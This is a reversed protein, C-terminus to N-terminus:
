DSEGRSELPSQERPCHFRRGQGQHFMMGSHILDNQEITGVPPILQTREQPFNTGTTEIPHQIKLAMQFAANDASPAPSWITQTKMPKVALFEVPNEIIAVNWSTPFPM